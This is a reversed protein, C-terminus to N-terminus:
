RCRDGTRYLREEPQDSFPDPVFREATLEPRNIYGRGVAMGGIYLEGPVGIPVPNGHADLIYLRCNPVPRGIPITDYEYDRRCKWYTVAISTETPGYFNYFDVGLRDFCLEVLDPTLSEGGSIVVRLSRCEQVGEETLLLRLMSPVFTVMTVGERVILQVLAHPERQGRRPM